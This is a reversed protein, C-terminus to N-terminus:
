LVKLTWRWRIERLVNRWNRLWAIPRHCVTVAATHTQTRHWNAARSDSLTVIGRATGSCPACRASNPQWQARRWCSVSRNIPQGGCPTTMSACAPRRSRRLMASARSMRGRAGWPVAQSLRTSISPMWTRMMSRGAPFTTPEQNLCINLILGARLTPNITKSSTAAM